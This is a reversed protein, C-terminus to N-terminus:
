KEFTGMLEAAEIVHGHMAKEVQAKTAKPTEKLVTDLAYL